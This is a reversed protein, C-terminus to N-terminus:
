WKWDLHNFCYLLCFLFSQFSLDTLVALQNKLWISRCMFYISVVWHFNYNSGQYNSIFFTEIVHLKLLHLNSSFDVIGSRFMSVVQSLYSISIRADSVERVLSVFILTYQYNWICHSSDWTFRCDSVVKCQGFSWGFSHYWHDLGFSKLSKVFKLCALYM